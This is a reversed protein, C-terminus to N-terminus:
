GKKKLWLPQPSLFSYFNQGSKIKITYAGKKNKNTITAVDLYNVKGTSSAGREYIKTTLRPIIPERMLRGAIKVYIGSLFAPINNISKLNPDNINRGGPIIQNKGYIKNIANRANKKKNKINLSILNILINSDHYPHHLRILQFEVAKNFKTSLIKSILFFNDKFVKSLNFKRLNFLM